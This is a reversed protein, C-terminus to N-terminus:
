KKTVSVGWKGKKMPYLTCNFGKKRKSKAYEKANTKNKFGGHGAM